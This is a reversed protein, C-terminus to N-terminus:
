SHGLLRKLLPMVGTRRLLKRFGAYPVWSEAWHHRAYASSLQEELCKEGEDCPHFYKSDYVRVDPYADSALAHELVRPSTNRISFEADEEYFSLARAILPHHPRAGIISSEIDGGKSRGLFAGDELFRDLPKLLEMDTDLYIGGERELAWFRIYDSVFAWKKQRYMEQVYPHNMPSNEENWFRIAYDPTHRKWSEVCKRVLTPMPKGGVWVYHLVKPISNPGMSEMTSSLAPALKM